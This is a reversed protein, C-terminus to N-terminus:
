PKEGSLREQLEQLEQEFGSSLVPLRCWSRPDLNYDDLHFSVPLRERKWQSAALKRFFLTVWAAMQGDGFRNPLKEQAKLYCDLPSQKEYIAFREILSLVEYPMLDGEDSQQMALPRLEASPELRNVIHLEPIPGFGIPGIKQMWSLWRRIFPKDIGGIPALGGMTDGDM